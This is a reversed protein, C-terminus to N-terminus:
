SVQPLIVLGILGLVESWLAWLDGGGPMAALAGSLKAGNVLAAAAVAITAAGFAAPPMFGAMYIQLAPVSTLLQRYTDCACAANLPQASRAAEWWRSGPAPLSSVSCRRM